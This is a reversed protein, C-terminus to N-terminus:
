CSAIVQNRFSFFSSANEFLLIFIFEFLHNTFFIFLFLFGSASISLHILRSILFGYNNCILSFIIICRKQRLGYPRLILSVRYNYFLLTSLRTLTSIVLSTSIVVLSSLSLRAALGRIDSLPMVLRWDNYVSLDVHSRLNLVFLLIHLMSWCTLLQHRRISNSSSYIYTLVITLCFIPLNIRKTFYIRFSSFYNFTYFPLPM